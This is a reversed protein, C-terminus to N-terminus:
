LEVDEGRSLAVADAAAATSSSSRRGRIRGGCQGSKEVVGGCGGSRRGIGSGSSRRRSSGDLSRWAGSRSRRRHRGRVVEAAAVELM